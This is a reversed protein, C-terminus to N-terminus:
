EAAFVRGMSTCVWGKMELITVLSNVYQPSFGTAASINEVMIEGAESVARLVKQEDSGLSEKSDRVPDKGLASFIDSISCVPTIDGTGIYALLRNTGVSCRSTINGPVTMLMKNQEVAYEATKLAGSHFSAEVIVIIDAIAAILRNRQPFTWPKAQFGPPYESLLLGRDRIEEMLGRNEAPYCLDLGNGLVAIVNGGQHICARQASSDIGAAMGSVLTVGARAAQRGIERSVSAGYPSCKRSGVVALVPPKLLEERGEMFVQEPPNKLSPRLFQEPYGSEGKKVQRIM